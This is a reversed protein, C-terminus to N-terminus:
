PHRTSRRDAEAHDAGLYGFEPAAEALAALPPGSVPPLQDVHARILHAPELLHEFPAVDLKPIDGGIDHSQAATVHESRQDLPFVVAGPQRLEGTASHPALSILELRRQLPRDTLVLAEHQTVQELVDLKHVPLDLLETGLDLGPHAGKLRVHLAQLSDWADTPTADLRDQGHLTVQYGLKEIRRASRRLIAERDVREFFDGGLESYVTGDKLMHYIVILIAHAVAIIARSTRLM